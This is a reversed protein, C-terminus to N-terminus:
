PEEPLTALLRVAGHEDRAVTVSGGLNELRERMGALGNGLLLPGSGRGDDRIDLALGAGEHRLVVWLNTANSHRASNTLAEQVTRLVAEARAFGTLRAGDALELHVQPRPFPAALLEIARRLDMNDHLRLQQVVGRIDALLEDALQACLAVTQEDRWRPDRALAALNLKLATLKHGAVDHLERSLRLREFDRASKALLSRTAILEANAQALEASSREAKLAYWAMMGAFLQFSFYSMTFLLPQSAGWIRSAVLYVGLNALVVIALSLAPRFAQVLQATAIVMLIPAVSYRAMATLALGIGLQLLAAIARVRDSHPLLQCGLFCVLFLGHLGLAVPMFWQVPVLSTSNGISDRLSLGIVAWAIYAAINLPNLLTSRLRPNM